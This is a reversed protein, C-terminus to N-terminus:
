RGLGDTSLETVLARLYFPNGRTVAFCAAVFADSVDPLDARVIEGVAGASLPELKVVQALPHAALEPEDAAGADRVGVAVVIPLDQLRQTLYLLFRLSGRDTWHLDDVSIMLPREEALNAALWHLGHLISFDGAAPAHAASAGAPEFLSAALGASGSLRLAARDGQENAVSEFLQLAVGFAFDRELESGRAGVVRYGASEAIEEGAALLRSKGIGPRGEVVLLQGNGDSAAAICERFLALEHDRELMGRSSRPPAIGVM